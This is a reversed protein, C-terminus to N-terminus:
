SDDPWESFKKLGDPIECWKVRSSYFQHYTMTIDPVGDLSGLSVYIIDPEPKYESALFAGCESCFLRDADKTQSFKRLIEQGQTWKFASRQVGGYSAFASGTLKRCISCHCYSCDTIEKNIQYQIRGCVCSGSAEM